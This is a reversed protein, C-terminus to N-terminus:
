NVYILEKSNLFKICDIVKPMEVVDVQYVDEHWLVEVKDRSHDFSICFDKIDKTLYMLTECAQVISITRAHVESKPPRGVKGVM